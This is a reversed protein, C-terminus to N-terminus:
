AGFESGFEAWIGAITAAIVSYFLIMLLSVIETIIAAKRCEKDGIVLCIIFGYLHCFFTILFGALAGVLISKPEVVNNTGNGCHTCFQAGDDLQAGCKQCYM